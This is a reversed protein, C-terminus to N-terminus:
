NKDIIFLAAVSIGIYTKTFLIRMERLFVSSDAKYNKNEVQERQKETKHKRDKKLNSSYRKSNQNTKDITNKVTDKKYSTKTIARPIVNYACLKDYHILTLM